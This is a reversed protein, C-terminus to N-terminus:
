DDNRIFREFKFDSKNNLFYKLLEKQHKNIRTFVRKSKEFLFMNESIQKPTPEGNSKEKLYELSKEIRRFESIESYTIKNNAAIIYEKGCKECRFATIYINGKDSNTYEAEYLITDKLNWEFRCDDCSVVSDIRNFNKNILSKNTTNNM